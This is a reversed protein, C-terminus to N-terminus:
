GKAEEIIKNIMWIKGPGPIPKILEIIFTKDNHKVQVEAVSASANQSLLTFTDEFSFGHFAAAEAKAVMLVDLRWPQHGEDVAQQLEVYSVGSEAIGKSGSRTYRYYLTTASEPYGKDFVSLYKTGPKSTATAIKIFNNAPETSRYVEYTSVENEAALVTKIFGDQHAIPKEIPIEIKVFGGLYLTIKPEPLLNSTPTIEPEPALKSQQYLYIIGIGLLLVVAVILVIIIPALGLQSKFIKLM